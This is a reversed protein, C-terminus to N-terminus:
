YIKCFFIVDIIPPSGDRPTRMKKLFSFSTQSTKCSLFSLFLLMKWCHPTWQLLVVPLVLRQSKRKRVTTSPHECNEEKGKTDGGGLFFVARRADLAAKLAPLLAANTLVVEPETLAVCHKLEEPTYAPNLRPLGM